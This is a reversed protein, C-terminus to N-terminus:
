LRLLLVVVVWVLVDNFDRISHFDFLIIVRILVTMRIRVDSNRSSQLVLEDRDVM